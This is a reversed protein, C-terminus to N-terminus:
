ESRLSRIPNAIAAKVAQFSITLVAIALTIFAALLFVPWAVTTRYAFAALWRDMAYWAVPIAILVGVIVLKVFDKALLGIIGPVSAGLVKRVGIERFRIHTTYAALGFLGLCSILIAIGAFYFFLTGERQESRYLSDFTDDLFAYSFPYDKNYRKFLAGAARISKAADAGTTRIYIRGSGGPRSAFVVPGIKQKMSAFHFDQVVGVITGNTKRLRFRKGVPDKMGIERIAAENLIFHTSDAATGTFGTGEVLKMKFFSIFDKDVAIPHVIFSQGAAKGDWDNDGSIGGMDVINSTASTVGRIGSRQLLEGKVADYEKNMGRMWFSFVHSKDYGLDKSRIYNLQRYIVFTGIILIVSSAFQVVVLAKRFLADGRNISIKSKLAALPDFSSLLMAPYISSAVLTALITSLIVTWIHPDAINFVLQKGSLQNFLPMSVWILAVALIAALLFLLATEVVFQLFLHIKAAGVIKRMSVEKSRLLARATSLNVYNICAISLILFAIITFINVTQIGADTGDANYLHMKVLPQLLYIADTDDPKHRIHIQYLKAEMDKLSTGPKLQLFTIYQYSSFDNNIDVNFALQKQAMLTMPMIMDYQMSSNLPFDDIVGTVIFNENDNAIIVKGLAEQSGFFKKATRRTIVVSHADTFPQATNGEVLPFDFLSFFSPDAFVAAEDAFTKDGYKYLSYFYNNTIRTQTKVEPLEQQALPGMAAVTETWIRKSAGTGGFLEMRYIEATKKHFSDFSREDQVWLLILIGITLGLTLGAINILSYFKNKLLNRWATKFYNKLM